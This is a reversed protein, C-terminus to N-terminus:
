VFNADHHIRCTQMLKKLSDDAPVASPLLDDPYVIQVAHAARLTAGMSPHLSRVPVYKCRTKFLEHLGTEM